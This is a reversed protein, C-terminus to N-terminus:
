VIRKGEAVPNKTTRICSREPHKDNLVGYLVDYKHQLVDIFNAMENLPLFLAGTKKEVWPIPVPSDQTLFYIMLCERDRGNCTIIGGAKINVSGYSTAM